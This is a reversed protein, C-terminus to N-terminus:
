EGPVAAHRGPSDAPQEEDEDSEIPEVDMDDVDLNAFDDLVDGTGNEDEPPVVYGGLIALGATLVVTLPAEIESAEIGAQALLWILIASLAAGVAGGTASATTVKGVKRNPM